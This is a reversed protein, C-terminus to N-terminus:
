GRLSRREKWDFWWEPALRALLKDVPEQVALNYLAPAVNRREYKRFALGWSVGPYYVQHWQGGPIVLTEGAEVICHRGVAEAFRPYKRLDPERVNVYSRVTWPHRYLKDTEAPAFLYFEKRGHIMVHFVHPLDVDYHFTTVGGEGGFFSGLFQRSLWGVWRPLRIDELLTPDMKFLDFLFLRVKTRDREILDLYEGFRMSGFPALYAKGPQQFSEDYVDVPYSAYRERFFAPTWRTMAPWDRAFDTLIVPVHRSLYREELEEYSLRAVRPVPLWRDM